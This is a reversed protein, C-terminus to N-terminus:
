QAMSNHQMTSPNRPVPPMALRVRSLYLNLNNIPMGRTTRKTLTAEPMPQRSNSRTPMRLIPWRSKVLSRKIFLLSLNGLSSLKFDLPLPPSVLVLTSFSGMIDISGTPM